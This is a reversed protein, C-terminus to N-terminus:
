IRGVMKINTIDFNTKYKTNQNGEYGM